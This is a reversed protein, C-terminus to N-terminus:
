GLYFVRVHEGQPNAFLEETRPKGKLVASALEGNIFSGEKGTKERTEM